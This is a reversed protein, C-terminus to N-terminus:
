YPPYEWSSEGTASNYYYTYGSDEDLVEQWHDPLESRGDHAYAAYADVLAEPQAAGQFAGYQEIPNDYVASTDTYSAYTTDTEAAAAAADFYADFTPTADHHSDYATDAADAYRDYTAEVHSYTEAGYQNEAAAASDYGDHYAHTSPDYLAAAVERSQDRHVHNAAAAQSGYDDGYAVLAGDYNLDAYTDSAVYSAEDDAFRSHEYAAYEAAADYDLYSSDNAADHRRVHEGPEDHAHTDTGAEHHLRNLVTHPAATDAADDSEVVLEVAYGQIYLETKGEYPRTLM